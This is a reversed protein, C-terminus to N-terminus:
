LPARRGFASLLWAGAALPLGRLAVNGLALANFIRAPITRIELWAPDGVQSKFPQAAKHFPSLEFCVLNLYDHPASFVSPKEEFSWPKYRGLMHVFKSRDHFLNRLRHMVHYGNAGCHFIVDRGTMFFFVPTDAFPASALIAWLAEQDSYFSPIRESRPAKQAQQYPEYKLIDRWAEVLARHQRRVLISGGNVAYELPRGPPLQFDKVRLHSGVEGPMRFDQSVAVADADIKEIQTRLDGTVVIDTDLWIATEVIDLARLLVHPKVNWGSGVYEDTYIHEVTELGAVADSVSSLPSYVLLKAGPNHEVLSRALLAVGVVAEPRDEYTVFVLDSPM